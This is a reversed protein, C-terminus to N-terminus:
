ASTSVTMCIYVYTADFSRTHVDIELTRSRTDAAIDLLRPPDLVRFAKITAGSTAALRSADALARARDIAEDATTDSLDFIRASTGPILASHYPPRQLLPASAEQQDRREASEKCAHVFFGSMNWSFHTSSGIGGNEGAVGASWRMLSPANLSVGAFPAIRFVDRRRRFSIFKGVKEFVQRSKSRSVDINQWLIRIVTSRALV